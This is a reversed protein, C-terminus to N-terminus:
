PGKPKPSPPLSLLRWRFSQFAPSDKTLGRLASPPYAAIQAKTATIRDEELPHSAFFADVASPNRTREDLLIRFMEPIGNPDIGAKITTKVGEADAEAEDARSFKAFLASGAVNVVTQGAGSDCVKLLTCLLVAGGGVEQSQQMQQVTHRLTVHGIEHGLVGAVESMNQAREILGRNVYIWGGPLAFANVEKSDVVTFHWALDRTDTVRALQNGLSSIYSVVAPDRILPLMTDIQAATNAGLQVEQQQSVACSVLAVLTLCAAIRRMVRAAKAIDFKM